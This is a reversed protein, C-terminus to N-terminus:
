SMILRLNNALIQATLEQAERSVIIGNHNVFITVPLSTVAYKNAVSGHTDLATPYTIHYSQLFNLANSSSEQFDIGLFVVNKGQVQQWSHELLPAEEKCPGCWSAWFNLVIAQGKFDALTLMSQQNTPRLMALSFNPATHGIFSSSQSGSAPTLLQTWLLALLGINCLSVACFILIRHKRKGKHMSAQVPVNEALESM